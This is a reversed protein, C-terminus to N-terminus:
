KSNLRKKILLAVTAKKDGESKGKKPAESEPRPLGAARLQEAVFMAPNEMGAEEFEQVIKQVQDKVNALRDHAKAAKRSNIEKPPLQGEGPEGVVNKAMEEFSIFGAM